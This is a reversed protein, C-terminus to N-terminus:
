DVVGLRKEIRFRGRQDDLAVLYEEYEEVTKDGKQLNCAQCAVALNELDNTGGRSLPTKHELHWSDGVSENCYVCLVEGNVESGTMVSLIIDSDLPGAERRLAKHKKRSIMIREKGRETAAWAKYSDLRKQREEETETVRKHRRVALIDDRNRMYYHRKQGRCKALNDKRYQKSKELVSERNRLYSSHKAVKTCDKCACALGNKKRSSRHFMSRELWRSCRSCKVAGDFPPQEPPGNKIARNRRKRANNCDLCPRVLKGNRFRFRNDPKMEGCQFCLKM